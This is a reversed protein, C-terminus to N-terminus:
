QPTEKDPSQDAPTRTENNTYRTESSVQQEREKHKAIMRDLQVRPAELYPFEMEYARLHEEIQWILEDNGTRVAIGYAKEAVEAAKRFQQDSAYAAALADLIAM